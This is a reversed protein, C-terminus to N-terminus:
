TRSGRPSGGGSGKSRNEQYGAPMLIRISYQAAQFYSGWATPRVASIAFATLCCTLSIAM